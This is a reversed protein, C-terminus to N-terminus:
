RKQLIYQEATEDTVLNGDEDLAVLENERVQYANPIDFVDLVIKDSGDWMIKGTNTIVESNTVDQYQRKMTYNDGQLTLETHIGKCDACPLMGVYTGDYNIIYRAGEMDQQNIAQQLENDLKEEMKRDRNTKCGSFLVIALCLITIHIINTRM